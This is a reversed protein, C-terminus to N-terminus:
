YSHGEAGCILIQSQRLGVKQLGLYLEHSSGDLLLDSDSGNSWQHGSVAVITFGHM